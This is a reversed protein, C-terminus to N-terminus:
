TGGSTRSARLNAPRTVIKISSPVLIIKVVEGTHPAEIEQGDGIYMAVHGPNLPTGDSGASYLLDGIQLIPMPLHANGNAIWVVPGAQKWEFTTRPLAIGGAAYAAQVLASCDWEDPGTAGLQYPKGLQAEAFAIATAVADGGAAAGVSLGGYTNAWGLVDQAYNPADDFVEIAGQLNAGDKAGNRCLLNAVSYIADALATPDTVGDDNGDVGYQAFTVPDFQMPGVARNGAPMHRGDDTAVEGVGALVTWPLGPCTAAATQYLALYTPPIDALAASSPPPPESVAAAASGGSGAVFVAVLALPLGVLGAVLASASSKM